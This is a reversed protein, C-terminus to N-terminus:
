AGHGVGFGEAALEDVEGDAGPDELEPLELGLGPAEGGVEEVCAEEGVPCAQPGQAAVVGPRRQGRLDGEVHYKAGGVLPDGKGRGGGHCEGREAVVGGEAVVPLLGLVVALAPRDHAPRERAPREDHIVHDRIPRGLALRDLHDTGGAGGRGADEDGQVPLLAAFALEGGGLLDAPLVPQGNCGNRGEGVDQRGEPGPGPLAGIDISDLFIPALVADLLSPLGMFVLFSQRSMANARAAGAAWAANRHTSSFPRVWMPSVGGSPHAFTTMYSTVRPPVMMRLISGESVSSCIFARSSAASFCRRASLAAASCFRLSEASRAVKALSFSNSVARSRLMSGSLARMVCDSSRAFSISLRM